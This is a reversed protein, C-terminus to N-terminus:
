HWTSCRKLSRRYSLGFRRFAPHFHALSLCYSLSLILTRTLTFFLPHFRMRPLYFCLQRLCDEHDAAEMFNEEDYKMDCFSLVNMLPLGQQLVLPSVTPTHSTLKPGHQFIEARLSTVVLVSHQQTLISLPRM